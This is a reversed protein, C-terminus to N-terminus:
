TIRVWRVCDAVVHAGFGADALATTGSSVSVDLLRAREMQFLPGCGRPPTAPVSVGLAECGM